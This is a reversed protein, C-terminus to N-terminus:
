PNPGADPEAASTAPIRGKPFLSAWLLIAVSLLMLFLGPKRDPCAGLYCGSFIIYTKVAYAANVASSFLAVRKAWLKPIWSAIATATGMVLLFKGPRGYINRESHFGNFHAQLDAYWTWPLNCALALLALAALSLWPSYRSMTELIFFLSPDEKAKLYRASEFQQVLNQLGRGLGEAVTGNWSTSTDDIM